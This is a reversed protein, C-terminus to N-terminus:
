NGHPSPNGAVGQWRFAKKTSRTVSQPLTREDIWRGARIMAFVIGVSSAIIIQHLTGNATVDDPSAADRDPLAARQIFEPRAIADAIFWLGQIQILLEPAPSRSGQLDSKAIALVQELTGQVGGLTVKQTNFHM